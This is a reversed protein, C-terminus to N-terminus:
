RGKPLDPRVRRRRRLPGQQAKPGAASSSTSRSCSSRRAPGAARASCRPIAPRYYHKAALEQGEPSYLVRPLGPSRGRGKAQGRRKDVVAVPPEALISSPPVVIEFKGEGFEKLSSPRTRGPWSCTASGASSSRSRRAAPPPTSSPCTRFLGAVLRARRRQEGQSACPGYGWAALYNWRAGGSTKPNPTIVSVGPKALDDWDRIGKPNGKRVLFVITSTYPTSNRCGSQWGPPDPREQRHRRHRVGARAHRRRGRPRRHRRPGAQGLRRAVASHDRSRGRRQRGNRPSRPM